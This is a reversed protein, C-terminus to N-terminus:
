LQIRGRYEYMNRRESMSEYACMTVDSYFHSSEFKDKHILFLFKRCKVINMYKASLIVKCEVLYSWFNSLSFGYHKM